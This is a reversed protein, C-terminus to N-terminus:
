EPNTKENTIIQFVFLSFDLLVILTLLTLASSSYLTKRFQKIGNLISGPGFPRKTQDIGMKM